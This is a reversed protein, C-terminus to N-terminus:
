RVKRRSNWEKRAERRYHETLEKEKEIQIRKCEMLDAHKTPWHVHMTIITIREKGIMEYANTIPNYVIPLRHNRAVDEGHMIGHCDAYRETVWLRM